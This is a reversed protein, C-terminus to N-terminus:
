EPRGARPAAPATWISAMRWNRVSQFVAAGGDAFLEVGLAPATSIPTGAPWDRTLASAVTLGTGPDSVPAGAEHAGAVPSALTIGSGPLTVPTGAPFSAPLPATLTVGTGLFRVAAGADHGRSLPESLIVGSGAPGPTGTFRGNAGSPGAITRIEARESGQEFVLAAGVTLGFVSALKVSTDGAAAPAALTLTRGRSGV